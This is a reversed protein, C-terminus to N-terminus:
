ILIKQTVQPLTICVRVAGSYLEVWPNGLFIFQANGKLFSETSYDVNQEDLKLKGQDFNSWYREIINAKNFPPNCFVNPVIMFQPLHDSITLTLNGFIADPSVIYSFINGILKKSHSTIRTLQLIYPVFSNSALFNLFENTPNDNNYNLVNANFDDLLFVSKQEISVTDLFNNLYNTSFNNLDMLPHKYICGILINVKQPEFNWYLYIVRLLPENSKYINLDLRPKDSFHNAACLHTGGESFETSAFEFSFNNITLNYILSVNKTTRIQTLCNYWFDDLNKNLSCTNIHFLALSKDKIPVKMNELEDIDYYKSQVVNGPDTDDEPSANNSQNM